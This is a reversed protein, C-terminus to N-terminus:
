KLDPDPEADLFLIPYKCVCTHNILIVHAKDLLFGELAVLSGFSASAAAASGM